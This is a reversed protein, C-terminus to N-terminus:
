LTLFLSVFFGGPIGFIDCIPCYLNPWNGSQAWWWELPHCRNFDQPTLSLYEELENIVRPQRRQYRAMFNTKTPSGNSSNAQPATGDVGDTFQPSIHSAYNEMYYAHLETKAKELDKLLILESAFDAQM